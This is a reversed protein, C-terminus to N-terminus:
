GRARARSLLEVVESHGGALALDSANRGDDSRAAPDAGHSLLAAVIALDGHQAAGQLPTWGGHQSASADAGHGLLLEVVPLHRGAVAAHLPRNAMANTSMVNVDAGHSVLLEAVELRGYFAALHLPTWGDQRPLDIAAADRHLLQHVLPADGAEAADALEFPSM